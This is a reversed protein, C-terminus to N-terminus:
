RRWRRFLRSLGLRSLDSAVLAAQGTRRVSIGWPVPYTLRLLHFPSGHSVLVLCGASSLLLFLALALPVDLHVQVPGEVDGELREVRQEFRLPRM